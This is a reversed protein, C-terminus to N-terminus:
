GDVAAFVPAAASRLEQARSLAAAADTGLREALRARSLWNYPSMPNLSVRESVLQGALEPRRARLAAELLTRQLAERQAHSGGFLQFRRRLPWLLDVVEDYRQRGYAVIAKCAPLGVERTFMANSESASATALYRERSRVLDDAASLRGAGVYSMVAHMDNFAYHARPMKADWGEALVRWREEESRGALYLRWLLSAADLMEMVVFASEDNHLVADYISIAVDERGAELAYLCYHWWNHVNFFNGVTWDAAREDLFLLGDAFRARMELSHVVAHIAWVDKAQKAVAERGLDESRQYDGSEEVGFAYMGLLFSYADDDDSWATLAGGIRDRLSTANGTFFDIQHGIALALVDRPYALTLEQLLTGCGIMDGDLWAKAAAVHRRERESLASRDARELWGHFRSRAEAADEAETGLLGLYAAFVQGMAFDPESELALDNQAGVEPRFNLLASVASDFHSAAEASATIPLGSHDFSM